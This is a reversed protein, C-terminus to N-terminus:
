HKRPMCLNMLINIIYKIYVEPEKSTYAEASGTNEILTRIKQDRIGEEPPVPPSLGGMLKSELPRELGEM